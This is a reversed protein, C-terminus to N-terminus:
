SLDPVFADSSAAKFQGLLPSSSAESALDAPLNQATLVNQLYQGLPLPQATGSSADYFLIGNQFRQYIFNPNNPDSRAASTPLGWVSTGGTSTFTSMLQNPIITQLFVQLRAPYNPQDPTPSVFATAGDAAPVTLGEFSTYPLLGQAPLQLVQVSGDPQVALAANQFLQVPQGLLTFERSIPEGFTSPGGYQNFFAYIADDPISFGTEPYDRPAAGQALAPLTMVLAAALAAFLALQVKRV